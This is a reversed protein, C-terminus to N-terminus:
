LDKMNLEIEGHQWTELFQRQLVALEDPRNQARLCEMLGFLSRANKPTRRLDERFVEEAEQFRGARFLAGGLSERVPYYWNPPEDYSLSDYVAVAEKWHAVAKQPEKRAEAVRAALQARALSLIDDATNLMYQADPPVRSAFNNMAAHDEEAQEIKGTAAYALGRAFHWLASSLPRNTFPRPIDLVQKWKNFRLEVFWPTLVLPELMAM